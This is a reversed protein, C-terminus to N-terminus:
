FSCMILLLASVTNRAQLTHFVDKATHYVQIGAKQAIDLAHTAITSAVHKPQRCIVTM